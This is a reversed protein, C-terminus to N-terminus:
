CIRVTPEYIHIKCDSILLNFKRFKLLTIYNSLNISSEYFDKRPRSIDLFPNIVEYGILVFWLASLFKNDLSNLLEDEMYQEEEGYTVTSPLANYIHPYDQFVLKFFLKLAYRHKSQKRKGDWLEQSVYAQSATILSDMVGNVSIPFFEKIKINLRDYTKIIKEEKQLNLWSKLTMGIFKEGETRSPFLIGSRILNSVNKKIKNDKVGNSM